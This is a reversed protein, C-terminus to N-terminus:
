RTQAPLLTPHVICCHKCKCAATQDPLFAALDVPPLSSRCNSDPKRYEPIRLPQPLYPMSAFAKFCIIVMCCRLLTFKNICHSRVLVLQHFGMLFSQATSRNRRKHSHLPTFTTVIDPRHFFSDLLVFLAALM